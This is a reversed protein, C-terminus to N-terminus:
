DLELTLDKIKLGTTMYYPVLESFPKKRKPVDKQKKNHVLRCKTLKNM